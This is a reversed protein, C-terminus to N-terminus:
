KSTKYIYSTNVALELLQKNIRLVLDYSLETRDPFRYIGIDIKYVMFRKTRM